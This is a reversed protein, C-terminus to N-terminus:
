VGRVQIQFLKLNEKVLAWLKLPSKALQLGGELLRDFLLLDSVMDVAIDASAKVDDLMELLFEASAIENQQLEEGNIEPGHDRNELPIHLLERKIVQFGLSVANM